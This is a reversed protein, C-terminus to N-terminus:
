THVNIQQVDIAGAASALGKALVEARGGDAAFREAGTLEAFFSPQQEFALVAVQDTGFPPIVLIQDKPDAGPIAKPAGGAVIQRESDRTPYLVTFNGQPDLDLLM